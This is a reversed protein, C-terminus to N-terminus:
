ARPPAYSAAMRFSQPFVGPFIPKSGSQFISSLYKLKVEKRKSLIIFTDTFLRDRM